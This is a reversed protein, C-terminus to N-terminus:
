CEQSHFELDRFLSSPTSVVGDCGLYDILKAVEVYISRDIQILKNTVSVNNNNRVSPVNMCVADVEELSYIYSGCDHPKQLYEDVSSSRVGDLSVSLSESTLAYSPIAEVLSSVDLWDSHRIHYDLQSEWLVNVGMLSPQDLVVSESHEVPDVDRQINM